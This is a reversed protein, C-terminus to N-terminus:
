ERQWLSRRNNEDENKIEKQSRTYMGTYSAM